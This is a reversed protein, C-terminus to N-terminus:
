LVLSDINRQNAEFDAKLIIKKVFHEQRNKDQYNSRRAVHVYVERTSAEGTLFESLNEFQVEALKAPVLRQDLEGDAQFEALKDKTHAYIAEAASRQIAFTSEGSDEKKETALGEQALISGVFKWFAANNERAIGFDALSLNGRRLNETDNDAYVLVDGDRKMIANAQQSDLALKVGWLAWVNEQGKNVGKKIESIGTRVTFAVINAKYNGEPLVPSSLAAGKSEFDDLFSDFNPQENQQTESM